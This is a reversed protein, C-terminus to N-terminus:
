CIAMPRMSAACMEVIRYDRGFLEVADVFAEFLTERRRSDVAAQQM